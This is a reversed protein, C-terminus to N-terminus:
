SQRRTERLRELLLVNRQRLKQADAQARELEATLGEAKAEAPALAELADRREATLRLVAKGLNSGQDVASQDLLEQLENLERAVLKQAELLRAERAGCELLEARAAELAEALTAAEREASLEGSRHDSVEAALRQAEEAETALQARAAELEAAAAARDAEIEVGRQQLAGRVAELEAAHAAAQAARAAEAEARAAEAEARAAEAQVRAAEAEAAAASMQSNLAVKAKAAEGKVRDLEAKAAAAEVAAEAKAAATAEATAEAAAAAAESAAAAAEARVRRLEEAASTCTRLAADRDRCAEAAVEEAAQVAAAGNSVIGAMRYRRMAEATEEFYDEFEDFSLKGDENADLRHMLKEVMAAKEEASCAVGEPHYSSWVWGALAVLEDGELSDSGDKDLERFKAKASVVAEKSSKFNM